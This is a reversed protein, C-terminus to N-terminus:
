SFRPSGPTGPFIIVPLNALELSDVAIEEFMLFTCFAVCCGEYRISHFWLSILSQLLVLIFLQFLHM